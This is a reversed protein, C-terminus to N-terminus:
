IPRQLKHMKSSIDKLCDAAVLLSTHFPLLRLHLGPSVESIAFSREEVGEAAFTDETIIM